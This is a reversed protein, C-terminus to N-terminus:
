PCGHHRGENGIRQNVAREIVNQLERINGPWHYRTLVEMTESLITDIMLAARERSTDGQAETESLAPKLQTDM